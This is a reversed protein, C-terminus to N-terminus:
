VSLEFPNAITKEGFRKLLELESTEDLNEDSIVQQVKPQKLSPIRSMFFPFLVKSEYVKDLSPFDILTAIENQSKFAESYAFCWTGNKLTLVGIVLQKYRLEIQAEENKSIPSVKEGFWYSKAEMSLREIAEKIM